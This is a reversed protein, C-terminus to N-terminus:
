EFDRNLFRSRGARKLTAKLQPRTMAASADPTPAAALVSRADPRTLRDELSQFAVLAAPYCEKLLSRIEKGFRQRSWVADQQARALVRIALVSDTGAPLPRHAGADTRVINALMAADASDSKSGSVSPRSRYRSAALPNTPYIM